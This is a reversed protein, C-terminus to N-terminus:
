KPAKDVSFKEGALRYREAAITKTKYQSCNQREEKKLVELLRRGGREMTVSIKRQIQACSSAIYDYFTKASRRSVTREAGTQGGCLCQPSKANKM